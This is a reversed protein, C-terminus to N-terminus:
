VSNVQEFHGTLNINMSATDAVTHEFVSSKTGVTVTWTNNTSWKALWYAYYVALLQLLCLTCLKIPNVYICTIYIM